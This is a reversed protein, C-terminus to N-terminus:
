FVFHFFQYFPLSHCTLIHFGRFYFQGFVIKSGVLFHAPTRSAAIIGNQCGDLPYQRFQADRPFLKHKDGSNTTGTAERIVHVGIANVTDMAPCGRNSGANAQGIRFQGHPHDGTVAIAQTNAAIM